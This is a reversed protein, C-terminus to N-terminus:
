KMSSLIHKIPYLLATKISWIVMNITMRYDMKKLEIKYDEALEDIYEEAYKQEFPDKIKRKMKSLVVDTILEYEKDVEANKYYKELYVLTSKIVEHIDVNFNTNTSISKIKQNNLTFTPNKDYIIEKYKNRNYKKIVKAPVHVYKAKTGLIQEVTKFIESYSYSKDDSIHYFQGAAGDQLFLDIVANGFTSVHCLAHKSEPSDFLLVPKDNLIREILTYPNKRSAFGVPIRTDGFTITPRIVTWYFDYNCGKSLLYLEAKRKHYGYEWKLDDLNINKNEDVNEDPHYYVSDTSIYIYQSCCGNVIDLSRILQKETFVLTDVIVDFFPSVAKKAFEDDMWDGQIGNINLDKWEKFLERRSLVYVDIERLAAARTIAGGIIGMGGIILVKM